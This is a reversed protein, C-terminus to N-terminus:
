VTWSEQWFLIISTDRQIGTKGYSNDAADARSYKRTYSKTNVRAILLPMSYIRQREAIKDIKATIARM